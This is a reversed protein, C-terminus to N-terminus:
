ASYCILMNGQYRFLQSGLVHSAHSFGTQARCFMKGERLVDRLVM